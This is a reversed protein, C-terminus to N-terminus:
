LNEKAIEGRFSVTKVNGDVGLLIKGGDKAVVALRAELQRGVCGAM